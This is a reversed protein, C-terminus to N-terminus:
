YPNFFEVLLDFKCDYLITTTVMGTGTNAGIQFAGVQAAANATDNLLNMGTSVGPLLWKCTIPVVSYPSIIKATDSALLIVDNPNTSTSGTPDINVYLMPTVDGVGQLRRTPAITCTAARIRYQGYQQVFNAFENVALITSFNLYRIDATNSFSVDGTTLYSWVVEPISISRIITETKMNIVRSLQIENRRMQGQFTDQRNV